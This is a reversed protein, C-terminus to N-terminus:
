FEWLYLFDWYIKKSYDVTEVYFIYMGTIVDKAQQTTTESNEQEATAETNGDESETSSESEESCHVTPYHSSLIAIICAVLFSISKLNM